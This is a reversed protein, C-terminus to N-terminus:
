GMEPMLLAILEIDRDLLVSQEADNSNYHVHIKQDKVQRVFSDAEQEKRFRRVYHGVRYEGVYYTYTIDAWYSWMGQREVTGSQITADAMPWGEMARRQRWKQYLRRIGYAALAGPLIGFVKLLKIAAFIIAEWPLHSPTM